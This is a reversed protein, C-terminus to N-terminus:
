FISIKQDILNGGLSYNYSVSLEDIDQNDGTLTFKFISIWTHTAGIDLFTVTKPKGAFLSRKELGYVNAAATPSDIIGALTANTLKVAESIALREEYPFVPEVTFVLTAQEPKWNGSDVTSILHRLVLALVERKKFGHETTLLPSLGQIGNNPFRNTHSKAADLFSWSCSSLDKMEWHGSHNSCRPNSINWFAFYSPSLRKSQQNLAIHVHKGLLAMGVKIYESGYDIGFIASHTLILFTAFFM